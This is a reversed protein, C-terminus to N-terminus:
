PQAKEALDAPDLGADQLRRGLAAADTGEILVMKARSTEGRLIRVAGKPVGALDALFGVLAANAKGDVAPAQLAIKLAGDHVGGVGTRRAHPQVRVPM